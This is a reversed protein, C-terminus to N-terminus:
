PQRHRRWYLRVLMAVLMAILTTATGIGVLLLFSDIPVPPATKLYGLQPFQSMFDDPDIYRCNSSLTFLDGVPCLRFGDLEATIAYAADEGEAVLLFRERGLFFTTVGFVVVLPFAFYLFKATVSALNNWIGRGSQVDILRASIKIANFADKRPIEEDSLLFIKLDIYERSRLIDWKLHVSREDHSTSADIKDHSPSTDCHIITCLDPTSIEAEVSRVFHQSTIDRSGTNTVRARLEYVNGTVPAGNHSVKIDLPGTPTKNTLRSVSTVESHLRRVRLPLFPAVLAALVGIIAIAITITTADWKM